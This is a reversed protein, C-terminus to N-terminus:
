GFLLAGSTQADALLLVSLEDTSAVELRELAWGSTASRAKRSSAARPATSDYHSTTWALRTTAWKM